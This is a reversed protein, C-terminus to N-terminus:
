PGTGGDREAMDALFRQLRRWTRVRLLAVILKGFYVVALGDWHRCGTTQAGTAFNGCDGSM